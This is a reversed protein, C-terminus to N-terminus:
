QMYLFFLLLPFAASSSPPARATPLQRQPPILPSSLETPSRAEIPPNAGFAFTDLIQHLGARSEGRGPFTPFNPSGSDPDDCRSHNSHQSIELTAERHAPSTAGISRRRGQVRMDRRLTEVMAVGVAFGACGSSTMRPEVPVPLDSTPM